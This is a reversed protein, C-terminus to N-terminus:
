NSRQSPRISGTKMKTQGRTRQGVVADNDKRLKNLRDRDIGDAMKGPAKEPLASQPQLPAEIPENPIEVSETLPM